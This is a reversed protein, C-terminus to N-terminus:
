IIIEREEKLLSLENLDKRTAYVMNYDALIELKTENIFFLLDNIFINFLILVLVSVQPVELLLTKFLSNTDIIKVGDKKEAIILIFTTVDPSIDYAYLKAVIM